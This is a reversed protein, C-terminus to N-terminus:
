KMCIVANAAKTFAWPLIPKGGWVIYGCGGEGAKWEARGGGTRVDAESARVFLGCSKDINGNKGLKLVLADNDGAGFSRTKGAAIYGGKGLPRVCFLGDYASGGYTKEWLVSGRANLKLVWGDSIGSGFSATTGAVIFGGDATPHVSHGYDAKPGGYTKQWLISGRKDLKLLWLDYSGAGFSKTLGAVIYGGDPTRRIERAQDIDRGGYTSSWELTYDKRFKLVWADDLGAGFSNTQGAVIFGGDPTEQISNGTEDGPGGFAGGCKMNGLSNTKFILLDRDISSDKLMNHYVQYGTMIYGGDWTQQVSHGGSWKHQNPYAPDAVFAQWSPNGHGDLKVASLDGRGGYSRCSVRGMLIFRNDRTTQVGYGNSGSYGYESYMRKQWLIAGSNALRVVWIESVPFGWQDVASTTGILIFGGGPVPQISAADDYDKGGYARAWQADSSAPLVAAVALILIWSGKKM